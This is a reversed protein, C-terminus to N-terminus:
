PLITPTVGLIWEILLKGLMYPVFGALATALARGTSFDLAQRIAVLVTGIMWALVLLHLTLGAEPLLRLLLLVGPAQAFGITRLLEGWDATGDFLQVGVWYCTGSWLAWGIYAGLIGAILGGPGLELASVAAALAVLGVVGAAQRTAHPDHEVEEYVPVRFTAAGVVRQLFTSRRRELPAVDQLPTGQEM